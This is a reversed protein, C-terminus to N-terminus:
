ERDRLPDSAEDAQVVVFVEELSGFDVAPRILLRLTGDAPNPESAVVKGVRLGRPYTGGLGSTLVVDGVAAEARPPVFTLHLGKGPSWDLIGDVRTRDLRTSVRCGRSVLPRVWASHPEVVVVKGVLGEPTIVALGERLGDRAGRDIKYSPGPVSAERGIVRAAVVDWALEERFHLMRRLRAAERGSEALATIELNARALRARLSDAEARRVSLNTVRDVAVQVPTLAADNLARALEDKRGSSLMMLTVSLLAVLALVLLEGRRSLYDTLAAM